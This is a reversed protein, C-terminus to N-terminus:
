GFNTRWRALLDGGGTLDPTEDFLGGSRSAGTPTQWLTGPSKRKPVDLADALQGILWRPGGRKGSTLGRADSLSEGDHFRRQARPLGPQRLAPAERIAAEHGLFCVM